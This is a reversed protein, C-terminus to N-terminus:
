DDGDSNFKDPKKLQGPPSNGNKEWGILGMDKWILGWAIGSDLNDLLTEPSVEVGELQSTKIALMIQGISYGQCYYTMVMEESVGYREAIKIALPHPSNKKDDSCYASNDAFNGLEDTDDDGQGLVKVTGAIWEDGEGAVAKILVADGVELEPLDFNEPIAIEITEGKNSEVTLVGGGVSLVEGKINIKDKQASVTGMAPVALVLVLLLSILTKKM